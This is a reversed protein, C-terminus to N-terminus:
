CRFANEERAFGPVHLELVDPAAVGGHTVEGTVDFAAGDAGLTEDAIVFVAVDAEVPCATLGAFGADEGECRVFEDATPQDVDKGFAKSAHTVVAEHARSRAAGQLGDAEMEADIGFRFGFKGLGLWVGAGATAPSEGEQAFDCGDM